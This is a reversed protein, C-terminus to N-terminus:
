WEYVRGDVKNLQGYDVAAALPMPEHFPVHVDALVLWLGPELNHPTRINRWTKPMPVADQFLSKDTQERGRVVRSVAPLFTDADQDKGSGRRVYGRSDHASAEGSDDDASWPVATCHGKCTKRSTNNQGM